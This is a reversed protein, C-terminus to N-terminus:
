ISNFVCKEYSYDDLPCNVLNMTKVFEALYYNIFRQFNKTLDDCRVSTFLFFILDYVFSEYFFLQFDYIKVRIPEDAVDNIYILLILFSLTMHPVLHFTCKGKKIMVNNTWLDRHVITTYPTDAARETKQSFEDSIRFQNEIATRREASLGEVFVLESCM